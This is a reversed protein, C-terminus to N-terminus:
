VEENQLQKAEEVDIMMKVNKLLTIIKKSTEWRMGNATVTSNGRQIEVIADTWMDKTNRDIQAWDMRIFIDPGDNGYVIARVPSVEIIDASIFKARDGEVKWRGEKEFAPSAFKFGGTIEDGLPQDEAQVEKFFIISLSILVSLVEICFRIGFRFNRM